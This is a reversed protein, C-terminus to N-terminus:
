QTQCCITLLALSLTKKRMKEKLSKFVYVLTVIRKSLFGVSKDKGTNSLM